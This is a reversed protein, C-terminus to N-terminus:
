STTFCSARREEFIFREDAAPQDYDKDNHM